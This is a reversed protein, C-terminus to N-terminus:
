NAVLKLILADAKGGYSTRVAKLTFLDYSATEGVLYMAGSADTHTSRGFDSARGGVQQSFVLSGFSPALKTVIVDAGGGRNQYAPVTVPFNDSYTAGTIYVDGPADM